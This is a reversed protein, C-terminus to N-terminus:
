LLDPAVLVAGLLGTATKHVWASAVAAEARLIHGVLCCCLLVQFVFDFLDHEMEVSAGKHAVRAVEM